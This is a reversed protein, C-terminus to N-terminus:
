SAYEHVREVRARGERRERERERSVHPGAGFGLKMFRFINLPPPPPAKKKKKRAYKELSGLVTRGKVTRRKKQLATRRKAASSRDFNELDFIKRGSIHFMKVDNCIRVWGICNCFFVCFAFFIVGFITGRFMKVLFPLM